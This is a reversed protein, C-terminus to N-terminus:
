RFEPTWMTKPTISGLISIFQPVKWNHKKCIAHLARNVNPPISDKDIFIGLLEDNSVTFRIEAEGSISLRYIKTITRRELQYTYEDAM